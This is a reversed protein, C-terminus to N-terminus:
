FCARGPVNTPNIEPLRVSKNGIRLFFALIPLKYL